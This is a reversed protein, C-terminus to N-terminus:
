KKIRLSLSFDKSHFYFYMPRDIFHETVAKVGQAWRYDEGPGGDFKSELALAKRIPNLHSVNRYFGRDDESWNDYKLSHYTQRPEKAGDEYLQLIFGVYDVGDLKPYITDIYDPAVMDDDDIFNIYEGQARELCWQRKEGLTGKRTNVLVEIDDRGGIQYQLVSTIRNLDDEREPVSLICISWKAGM